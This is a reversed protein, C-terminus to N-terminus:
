RRRCSARCRLRRRLRLLDLLGPDAPDRQEGDGSVVSTPFVHTVFDRFNLAATKLGPRSARRGAAAPGPRRGAAVPQRLDHRAVALRAVRLRVLGHGQAAIGGVAKADGLSAIGSVITAFVLPAIIMKILRLFIDTVITFNSAIQRRRRGPRRRAPQLRHRRRDRPGRRHRDCLSDAAKISKAPDSRPQMEPEQGIDQEHISIPNLRRAAAPRTLLEPRLVAISSRARDDAGERARARRRRPRDPAGGAGGRHRQAYGIYPNLATVIGISNSSARRAAARPQRHHRPRLEGGADPLSGDPPHHSRFM